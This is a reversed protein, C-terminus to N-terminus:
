RARRAAAQFAEQMEGSGSCALVAAAAVVRRKDRGAEGRLALDAAGPRPRLRADAAPLRVVQVDGLARDDAHALGVENLVALALFFFAWRWTLKRWGEATLHLAGDFMIQLMPKNFALGFFLAGAFLLYLVTPKIKILTEDHYFLTLSGFIVVIVATVLPMIPIRRLKWYSVALTVVVGAMMVGTAAFIGFSGTARPLVARAARAGARVQARSAAGEAHRQPPAESVPLGARAVPVRARSPLARALRRRAPRAERGGDDRRLTRAHGDPIFIPDYGFGATGRPPFVLEGDVRGEFTEVHGDPWCLALASVFYARWPKPAGRAELEAKIRAMAPAFDGGKGAWRASYIGPAGDLGVVCVGSNDSLAPLGSASADGRAGQDARQRRVHRRDGRARAPRTRRRRRGRRRAPELLDRIEALKGKNHTAAVIRGTLKRHATVNM